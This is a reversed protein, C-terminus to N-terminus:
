YEMFFRSQFLQGLVIELEETTLKTNMEDLIEEKILREESMIASAKEADANLKMIRPKDEQKQWSYWKSLGDHNPDGYNLFSKTYQMVLDTLAKRGPKNGESYCKGPFLTNVVYNEYGTFFDLDVQHSAGVLKRLPDSITGRETGWGLRYVYVPPQNQIETILDATSDANLCAFLKSGYELAALYLKLKKPNDLISLDIVVSGWFSDLINYIAYETADSGLILPVQNYDGKKVLDFGERPIVHGDLFLHPFDKMRIEVPGLFSLFQEPSKEKLYSVITHNAEKELWKKASIKDYAKGDKILVNMVIEEAYEEGQKAEALTRGGSVILAKHFLGKALPSILAALVNRAGASHGGLTVNNPDGGLCQINEKVWKLAQFIDLLGYNGSSDLKNDTNLAKLKFWGMIGLRYNISIIVSNTQAALIDGQFDEGSGLLNGGGHAWVLIPLNEEKSDPRWINLYLCDESGLINDGIKQLSKHNFETTHLIGSWKELSRPSKWRLEGIPPQAYPVGLWAITQTQEDRTGQILGNRLQQLTNRQYRNRQDKNDELM